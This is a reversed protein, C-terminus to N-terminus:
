ITIRAFFFLDNLFRTFNILNVNSKQLKGISIVILHATGTGTGGIMCWKLPLPLM